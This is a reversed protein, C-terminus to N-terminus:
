SPTVTAGIDKAAELAADKTPWTRPKLGVLGPGCHRAADLREQTPTDGNKESYSLRVDVKGVFGWRGSPYQTICNPPLKLM